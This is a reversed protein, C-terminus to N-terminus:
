APMAALTAVDPSSLEFDFLAANERIRDPRVSKPLPLFGMQLSWRLCIQAVTKNYKTAFPKMEPRDFVRSTGLPSYAQLLINRERCYKVTEDKTVGTFLTFVHPKCDVFCYQLLQSSQRLRM